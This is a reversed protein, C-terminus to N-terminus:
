SIAVPDARLPTWDRTGLRAIEDANFQRGDEAAREAAVADEDHGLFVGGVVRGERLVVKRYRHKAWDEDVIAVDHPEPNISGFSVVDLGCGKLTTKPVEDVFRDDGGAIVTAAVQAQKVAVPWLGWTRGDFEAVDGVAFIDPDSTRMQEDVVVGRGVRLGADSALERNATMGAAVIVTDCAITEGAVTAIGTVRDDGSIAALEIETRVSIGVSEFYSRLM